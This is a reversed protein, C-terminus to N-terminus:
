PCCRFCYVSVPREAYTWCSGTLKEHSMADSKGKAPGQVYCAHFDAMM